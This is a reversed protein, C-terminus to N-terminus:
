ASALLHAHHGTNMGNAVRRAYLSSAGISMGSSAFIGGFGLDMSRSLPSPTSSSITLSGMAPSGVLNLSGMTFDPMSMSRLSSTQAYPGLSITSHDIGPSSAYSSIGNMARCPNSLCPSFPCMCGQHNSASNGTTSTSMSYVSPYCSARSPGNPPIANASLSGNAGATSSMLSPMSISGLSPPLMSGNAGGLAEPGSDRAEELGDGSCDDHDRDSGDGEEEGEESETEEESVEGTLEDVPKLKAANTRSTLSPPMWRLKFFPTRGLKTKSEGDVMTGDTVFSGDAGIGMGASGVPAPAIVPPSFGVIYTGEGNSNSANSPPPVIGHTRLHRKANSRVGFTRTCGPFGCPYPRANNHTNMHTRLGSPRPFKKSCIECTHMKSKKKKKAPPQVHSDPGNDSSEQVASRASSPTSPAEKRQLSAFTSQGGRSAKLSGMVIDGDRGSLPPPASSNPEAKSGPDATPIDLPPTVSSSTSTGRVSGYPARHSLPVASAGSPPLLRGGDGGGLLTAPLTPTTASSPSLSSSYARQRLVDSIAELSHGSNWNVPANTSMPISPSMSPTGNSSHMTHMHRRHQPHTLTSDGYAFNVEPSSPPLDFGPGNALKPPHVKPFLSSPPTNPSSKRPYSTMPHPPSSMAPSYLPITNTSPTSSHSHVHTNSHHSRSIPTGSLTPPSPPTRHDSISTNRLSSPGYHDFMSGNGSAGSVQPTDFDFTAEYHNADFNSLHNMSGADQAPGLSTTANTGTRQSSEPFITSPYSGQGADYLNPSQRFGTIYPSSQYGGPNQTPHTVYGSGDSAYTARTLSESSLHVNPGVQAGYHGNGYLESDM